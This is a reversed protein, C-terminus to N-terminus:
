GPWGGDEAMLVGDCDGDDAVPLVGNAPSLADDCLPQQEKGKKCSFSLSLLSLFFIPPLGNALSM